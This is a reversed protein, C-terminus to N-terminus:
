MFAKLYKPIYHLKFKIIFVNEPIGSVVCKPTPHLASTEVSITVVHPLLILVSIIKYTLRIKQTFASTHVYYLILIKHRICVCVCVSLHM